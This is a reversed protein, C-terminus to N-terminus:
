ALWMRPKQLHKQPTSGYNHAIRFSTRVLPANRGPAVFDGMTKAEAQMNQKLTVLYSKQKFQLGPRSKTPAHTLKNPVMTLNALSLNRCKM